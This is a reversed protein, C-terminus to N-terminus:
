ISLYNSATGEQLLTEFDNKRVLLRKGVKVAKLQRHKIYNYVTAKNVNLQEAMEEVKLLEM